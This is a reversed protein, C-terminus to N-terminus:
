KTHRSQRADREERQRIQQDVQARHTDTVVPEIEGRPNVFLLQKLAFEYLCFSELDRFGFRRAVRDGDVQYREWFLQNMQEFSQLKDPLITLLWLHLEDVMADLKETRSTPSNLMALIDTVMNTHEDSIVPIFAIVM